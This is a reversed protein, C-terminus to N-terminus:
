LKWRGCANHWHQCHILAITYPRKLAEEIQPLFICFHLHLVFRLAGPDLVAVSTIGSCNAKLRNLQRDGPVSPGARVVSAWLHLSVASFGFLFPVMQEAEPRGPRQLAPCREEALPIFRQPVSLSSSSSINECHFCALLIKLCQMGSGGEEKLWGLSTHPRTPSLQRWRHRIWELHSACCLLLVLLRESLIVGLWICAWCMRPISNCVSFCVCVCGWLVYWGWVNCM